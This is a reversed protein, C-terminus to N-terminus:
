ADDLDTLRAVGPEGAPAFRVVRDADSLAIVIGRGDVLAMRASPTVRSRALGRSLDRLPIDVGVVSANASRQALTTGVEVTTFFVYPSTRVPAPTPIAARYWDRTRPDFRYDPKTEDRIVGLSEDFFLYRGGSADGPTRSQVLFAAGPPAGLSERVLPHRLTRV